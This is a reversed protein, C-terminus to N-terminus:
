NRDASTAEPANPRPMVTPVGVDHISQQGVVSRRGGNPKMKQNRFLDDLRLVLGATEVTENAVTWDPDNKRRCYVTKKRPHILWVEAFGYCDSQEVVQREHCIAYNVVRIALQQKGAVTNASLEVIADVHVRVTKGDFKASTTVTHDIAPFSVERKQRLQEQLNSRANASEERYADLYEVFEAPYSGRLEGGPANDDVVGVERLVGVFDNSNDVLYDAWQLWSQAECEDCNLLWSAGKERYVSFALDFLNLHFYALARLRGLALLLDRPNSGLFDPDTHRAEGAPSDDYMAWLLPERMLEKDLELLGKQLELRNSLRLQDGSVRLGRRAVFITIIVTVVTITEFFLERVDFSFPFQYGEIELMRDDADYTVGPTVPVDVRPERLRSRYGLACLLVILVLLLLVIMRNHLM